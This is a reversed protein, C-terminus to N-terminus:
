AVEGLWANLKAEQIRDKVNPADVVEPPGTRIM